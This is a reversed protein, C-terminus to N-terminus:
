RAKRGTLFVQSRHIANQRINAWFLNYDYIHYSPIVHLPLSFPTGSQDAVWLMGEHCQAWTHRPSLGKIAYGGTLWKFKLVLAGLNAEGSIRKEDASWCLPNICLIEKGESSEWGSPYRHTNYYKRRANETFTDWHIVVGSDEPSECAKINKYIRQFSDIPLSYGITYAAIMRKYLSTGDIRDAMLRMAHATGQSHSALFFPRDKNFKGIFYDFAQLVDTYALDLARYGNTAAPHRLPEIFAFLTAQRYRPAYIRGCGSFASAQMALMVEVPLQHRNEPTASANWRKQSLYGTPHIYFVDIEDKLPNPHEKFGPPVRDSANIRGPLAAWCAPNGYDPAPSIRDSRFNHRPKLLFSVVPLIMTDFM